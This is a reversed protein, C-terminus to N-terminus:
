DQWEIAPCNDSVTTGVLTGVAVLAKFLLILPFGAIRLFKMLNKKTSCSEKIHEVVTYFALVIGIAGVIALLILGATSLGQSWDINATFLKYLGFGLFFLAAAGAIYLLIKAVPRVNSAVKNALQRRKERAEEKRKVEAERNQWALTEVLSKIKKYFDYNINALFDLFTYRKKKCANTIGSVNYEQKTPDYYGLISLQTQCWSDLSEKRWGKVKEYFGYFLGGVGKFLIYKFLITFPLVLINFLSLWTFLCMWKFDRYDLDWTFKMLKVFINSKKLKWPQKM